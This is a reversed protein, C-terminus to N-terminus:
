THVRSMTGGRPGGVSSEPGSRREMGLRLFCNAWNPNQEGSGHTPKVLM